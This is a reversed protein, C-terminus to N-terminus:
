ESLLAASVRASMQQPLSAAARYLGITIRCKTLVDEQEAKGNFLEDVEKPALEQRRIAALLAAADAKSLQAPRGIPNREGEYAARLMLPMTLSIRSATVKSLQQATEPRLGEFGFEACAEKSEASLADATESNQEAIAALTQDSASAIEKSRTKVFNRSFEFGYAFLEDKSAGNRVM